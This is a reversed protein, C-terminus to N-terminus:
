VPALSGERAVLGLKFAIILIFIISHHSQNCLFFVVSEHDNPRGFASQHAAQSTALSSLSM